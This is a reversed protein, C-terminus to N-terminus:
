LQQVLARVRTLFLERLEDNPAVSSFVVALMVATDLRLLPWAPTETAVTGGENAYGRRFDSYNLGNEVIASYEEIRAVELEPPAALANSWDFISQPQGDLVRVNQRRIDLHTLRPRGLHEELASLMRASTPLTPLHTNKALEAYRQELRQVIRACVPLGQQSVFEMQPLPLQHMRAVVSGLASADLDSGDDDIVNLILVPFGDQEILDVPQASPIGNASAWAALSMEQRQLDLALVGRNNATNFEPTRPIRYGEQCGGLTATYFLFETGSGALTLTHAGRITAIHQAVKSAQHRGQTSM